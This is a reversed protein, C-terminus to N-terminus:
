SIQLPNSEPNIGGAILLFHFNEPNEPHNFHKLAPFGSSLGEFLVIEDGEQATKTLITWSNFEASYFYIVGNGEENQGALFFGLSEKRNDISALSPMKLTESLDELRDFTFSSYKLRHAQRSWEGEIEGGVIYVAKRWEVGCAAHHTCEPM